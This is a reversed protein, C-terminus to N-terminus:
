VLNVTGKYQFFAYSNYIRTYENEYETVNLNPAYTNRRLVGSHLYPYSKGPCVVSFSFIQNPPVSAICVIQTYINNIKDFTYKYHETVVNSTHEIEHATSYVVALASFVLM